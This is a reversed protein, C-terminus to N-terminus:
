FRFGASLRFQHMTGAHEEGDIISAGSVTFRYGLGAFWRKAFNWEVGASASLAPRISSEENRDSPIGEITAGDKSTPSYGDKASIKRTGIGGGIRWVFKSAQNGLVYHYTLLISSIHLDRTIEGDYFNETSGNPHTVRYSFSGIKESDGIGGAFEMALVQKEALYYGFGAGGGFFSHDPIFFGTFGADIYFRKPKETQMVDQGYATFAPTASMIAIAALGILAKQLRLHKM